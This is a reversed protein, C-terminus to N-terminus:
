QVSVRLYLGGSRLGPMERQAKEIKASTLLRTKMDEWVASKPEIRRLSDKLITGIERDVDDAIKQNEIVTQMTGEMFEPVGQSPMHVSAATRIYIIYLYFPDM